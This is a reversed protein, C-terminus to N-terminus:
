KFRIRSGSVQFEPRVKGGNRAITAMTAMLANVGVLRASVMALASLSAARSPQSTVCLVQGGMWPVTAGALSLYEKGRKCARAFCM